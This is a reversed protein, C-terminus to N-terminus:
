LATGYNDNDTVDATDYQLFVPSLKWDPEEDCAADPGTVM